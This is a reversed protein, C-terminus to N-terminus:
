LAETGKYSTFKCLLSSHLMEYYQFLKLPPFIYSIPGMKLLISINELNKSRILFTKLQSCNEAVPKTFFYLFGYVNINFLNSNTKNYVFGKEKLGEKRRRCM